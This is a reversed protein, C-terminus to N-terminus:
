KDLQFTEQKLKHRNDRMNGGHVVTFLGDGDEGYGWQLYWPNSNHEGFGDERWALDARTGCGGRVPCSSLGSQVLTGGSFKSWNVSTKGTSPPGFSPATTWIYNLSHLTFPCFWERQDSPQPGILAAWSTTIVQWAAPACQLSRNPGSDEVFVLARWASCSGLCGTGLRGWWWPSKKGM